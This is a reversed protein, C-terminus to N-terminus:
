PSPHLVFAMRHLIMMLTAWEELCPRIASDSIIESKSRLSYFLYGTNISMEKYKKLM